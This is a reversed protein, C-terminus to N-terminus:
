YLEHYAAESLGLREKSIDGRVVNVVEDCLKLAQAGVVKAVAQFPESCAVVADFGSVRTMTIEIPEFWSPSAVFQRSERLLCRM